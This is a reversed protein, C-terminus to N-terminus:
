EKYLTTNINKNKKVKDIDMDHHLHSDQSFGFEDPGSTHLYGHMQMLFLMFGALILGGNAVRSFQKFFTTHRIRSLLILMISLAAIQGLEVGINFSIIRLLMESGKEGLPLHQLRTSLGFGNILGFLFVM